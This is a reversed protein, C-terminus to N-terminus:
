LEARAEEARLPAPKRGLHTALLAPDKVTAREILHRRERKGHRLAIAGVREAARLRDGFRKLADATPLDEYDPAASAPRTRDPRRESLALLRELFVAAVDDQAAPKM